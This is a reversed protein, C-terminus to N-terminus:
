KETAFKTFIWLIPRAYPSYRVQRSGVTTGTAGEGGDLIPPLGGACGLAPQSLQQVDALGVQAVDKATARLRREVHREGDRM